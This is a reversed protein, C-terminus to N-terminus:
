LWRDLMKRWWPRVTAVRKRLVEHAEAYDQELRDHLRQYARAAEPVLSSLRELEQKHHELNFKLDYVEEEFADRQEILVAIQNRHEKDRQAFVQLQQLVTPESM